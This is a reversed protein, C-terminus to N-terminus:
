TFGCRAALLVLRAFHTAIFMLGAHQNKLQSLIERMGIRNWRVENPLGPHTVKVVTRDSGKRKTTIQLTAELNERDQTFISLPLSSQPGNATKDQAHNRSKVKYDSRQREPGYASSFHPDYNLDGNLNMWLVHFAAQCDALFSAIVTSDSDGFSEVQSLGIIASPNQLTSLEAQILLCQSLIELFEPPKPSSEHNRRSWVHHSLLSPQEDSDGLDHLAGVVRQVEVKLAVLNDKPSSPGLPM